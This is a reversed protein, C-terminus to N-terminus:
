LQENHLTNTIPLNTQSPRVTATNKNFSIHRNSWGLFFFFIMFFVIRQIMTDWFYKNLKSFSIVPRAYGFDNVVHNNAIALKIYHSEGESPIENGTYCLVSPHPENCLCVSDMYLAWTESNRRLSTNSSCQLHRSYKSGELLQGNGQLSSFKTVVTWAGNIVSMMELISWEFRWHTCSGHLIWGYSRFPENLKRSM